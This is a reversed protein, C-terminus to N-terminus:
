PRDVDGDGVVDARVKRPRHRDVGGEADPGADALDRTSKIPDVWARWVQGTSNEFVASEDYMMIKCCKQHLTLHLKFNKGSKKEVM